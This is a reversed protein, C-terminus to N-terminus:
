FPGNPEQQENNLQEDLVYIISRWVIIGTLQILNKEREKWFTNQIMCQVNVLTM